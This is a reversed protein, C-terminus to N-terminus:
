ASRPRPTAIATDRASLRRVLAQVRSVVDQVRFPKTLYDDAGAEYAARLDRQESRGSVVLIAVQDLDPLARMRKCVEVGPVDPLVVDLVVVAPREHTARAIADLGCEVARVRFGAARLHHAVLARLDPEDDVVLVEPGSAVM